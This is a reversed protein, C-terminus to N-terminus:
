LEQNIFFISYPVPSWAISVEKLGVMWGYEVKSVLKNVYSWQLSPALFHWHQSETCWKSQCM